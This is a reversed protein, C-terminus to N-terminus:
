QAPPLPLQFGPSSVTVELSPLMLLGMAMELVHSDGHPEACKLLMVVSGFDHKEGHHGVPFQNVEVDLKLRINRIGYVYGSRWAEGTTISWLRDRFDHALIFREQKQYTDLWLLTLNVLVGPPINEGERAGGHALCLKDVGKLIM